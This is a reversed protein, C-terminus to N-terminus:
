IQASLSAVAKKISHEIVRSWVDHAAPFHAPTNPAQVVARSKIKRGDVNIVINVVVVNEGSPNESIDYGGEYSKDAFCQIDRLTAIVAGTANPMVGGRLKVQNNRYISFEEISVKKGSLVDAKKKHLLSSLYQVRDPIVNKDGLRAIGYACNTIVSSLLESEQKSAPRNDIINISNNKYVTHDSLKVTPHMVCGSLFLSIVVFLIKNM